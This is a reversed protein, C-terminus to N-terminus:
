FHFLSISDSFNFFIFPYLIYQYTGTLFEPVFILELITYHCICYWGMKLKAQLHHSFVYTLYTFLKYVAMFEWCKQQTYCSFRKTLKQLVALIQM